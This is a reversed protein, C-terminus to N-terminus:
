SGVNVRKVARAHFRTASVIAPGSKTWVIMRTVIARINKIGIAVVDLSDTMPESYLPATTVVFRGFGQKNLAVIAKRPQSVRLPPAASPHVLKDASSCFGNM